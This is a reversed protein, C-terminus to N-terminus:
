FDVHLKVSGTTPGSEQSLNVDLSGYLCAGGNEHEKVGTITLSSLPPSRAVFSSSDTLHLLVADGRLLSVAGTRPYGDFDLILNASSILGAPLISLRFETTLTTLNAEAIGGSCVFDQVVAGALSGSCAPAYICTSPQQPHPQGSGTSGCASTVLFASLLSTSALRLPNM